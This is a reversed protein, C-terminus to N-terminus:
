KCAKKKAELVSELTLHGTIEVEQTVKGELREMVERLLLVASMRRQRLIDMTIEDVEQQIAKKRFLRSWRKTIYATKPRGSPNGSIGPPFRYPHGAKFSTANAKRSRSPLQQAKSVPDM